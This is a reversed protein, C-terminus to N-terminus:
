KKKEKTIPMPHVANMAICESCELTVYHSETLEERMEKTVENLHNCSWCKVKTRYENGEEFSNSM